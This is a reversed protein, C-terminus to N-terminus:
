ASGNKKIVRLAEHMLTDVEQSSSAEVMVRLLPETGSARLYVRANFAKEILQEQIASLNELVDPLLAEFPVNELRQPYPKFVPFGLDPNRILARLVFLAVGLGDGTPLYDRVIVHGSPEAGLLAGSEKIGRLVAQDGVETRVLQIGHDSLLTELGRNAMVTSVVVLPNLQKCAKLDLALLGLIQDGNLLTGQHNCFVVRDGDGDFAVGWHCGEKATMKQLRQPHAAGSAENINFGNFADHLVVVDAGLHKFVEPALASMAGYGTDVCLRVGSLHLPGLAAMLFDEYARVASTDVTNLTNKFFGYQKFVPQKETSLEHFTKELHATKQDWDIGKHAMCSTSSDHLIQAVKEEIWREDAKSIKFGQHDFIKLGNDVAPNHSASIMVGGLLANQANSSHWLVSVLLPTPILGVLYVDIGECRLCEKLLEEIVCGSARTDRALVVKKLSVSNKLDVTKQSTQQHKFFLALAYVIALLTQFNLPFVGCSGRIGDTGFLRLSKQAGQVTKLGSKNLCLNKKSSIM